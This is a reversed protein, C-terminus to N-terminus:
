KLSFAFCFYVTQNYCVRQHSNSNIWSICTTLEYVKTLDTSPTCGHGSVDVERELVETSDSSFAASMINVEELTLGTSWRFCSLLTEIFILEVQISLFTELGTARCFYIGSGMGMRNRCIDKSLTTRTNHRACQTCDRPPNVHGQHVLDIGIEGLAACQPHALRKRMESLM